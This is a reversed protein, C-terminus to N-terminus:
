TVGDTCVVQLTIDGSRIKFFKCFYDYKKMIFDRGSYLCVWEVEASEVSAISHLFTPIVSFNFNVISSAAADIQCGHSMM